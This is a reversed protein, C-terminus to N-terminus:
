GLGCPQILTRARALTNNIVNIDIVRHRLAIRTKKSKPHIVAANVTQAKVSNGDIPTGHNGDIFLTGNGTLLLRALLKVADPSTVLIGSFQM